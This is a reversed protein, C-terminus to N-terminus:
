IINVEPELHIGYHKYVDAQIMQTFTLVEKGTANGNHTPVLAHKEYMWCNGVQKGKWGLEDILRAAPIKVYKDNESGPSTDYRLQEIPYSQLNPIIQQLKKLQGM